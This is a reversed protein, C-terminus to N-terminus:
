PDSRAPLSAALAGAEDPREETRPARGPPGEADTGGDGAEEGWLLAEGTDADFYHLRSVDLWFEADDGVEVESAPDIRAVTLAEHAERVGVGELERAVTELGSSRSGGREVSFHAFLESGLWELMDIRATFRPGGALNRRGVVDVAAFHEPRVGVVLEHDRLRQVHRADGEALEFECMPLRMTTGDLQAPFFNMAPSGIFGAVFLNAPRLYLEKPTAVQQIVGKRMVAV